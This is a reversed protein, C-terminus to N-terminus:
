KLEELLYKLKQIKKEQQMIQGEDRKKALQMKEFIKMEKEYTHMFYSYAGEAKCLAKSAICEILPIEKATGGGIVSLIIYWKKNEKCIIEEKIQYGNAFLWKRLEPIMSMPQLLLLHNGKKTWEANKLIEIITEGGMGAISITNCESPLIADLGPALRFSIKESLGYEAANSKAHNLPGENIDSAVASKIKKEKLLSIPLKGHDTGIDALIADIPMLSAIRLLRPTLVMREM